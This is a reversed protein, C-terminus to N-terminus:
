SSKDDQQQVGMHADLLRTFHQEDGSEHPIPVFSDFDNWIESQQLDVPKEVVFLHGRKAMASALETQHNDMLLTNIVVVLRKKLRLAEMVTGAGAHSIILDAETMDKELSSQFGYTQCRIPPNEPLVPEEGKGYQIVLDTYGNSKMWALATPQTIAKILLDFRTTGVTVFISRKGM